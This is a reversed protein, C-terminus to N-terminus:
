ESNGGGNGGTALNQVLRIVWNIIMGAAPIGIVFLAVTMDGAIKVSLLETMLSFFVRIFSFIGFLLGTGSLGEDVAKQYGISEGKAQGATYGNEYGTETGQKNGINYGTDYGDQRGTNYGNAYGADYGIGTQYITLGLGDVNQPFVFSIKNILINKGKLDDPIKSKYVGDNEWNISYINGDTDTLKFPGSFSMSNGQGFISFSSIPVNDKLNININSMTWYDSYDVGWKNIAVTELPKVFQNFDIGGSVMSINTYPGFSVSTNNVLDELTGDVTAGAFIGNQATEQGKLIGSDYSTEYLGQLNPQYPLAVDGENFMFSITYDVSVNEPRGYNVALYYNHYLSKDVTFTFTGSRNLTHYPLDVIQNDSNYAYIVLYVADTATEFFPYQRGSYTNGDVLLDDLEVRVLREWRRDSTGYFRLTGNDYPNPCSVKISTGGVIYKSFDILNTSKINEIENKTSIEEASAYIAASSNRGSNCNKVTNIMMIVALVGFIVKVGKKLIKKIKQIM